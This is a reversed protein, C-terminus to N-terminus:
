LVLFVPYNDLDGRFFRALLMAQTYPLLGIPIKEKLFPHEIEERKRNQWANIFLRKTEDKMVINNEGNEIFDNRKVQRRNILSLVFRDCLYSRLEEMIDLALSARGPRETHLFGVYPDLGVSELASQIEHALLTYAFSLMCNVRDKPPRRSRGNFVFAEDSNLIMNNFISFYINAAEGEFGRLIQLNEANLCIKKIRNLKASANIIDSSLGQEPHDRKFREVSKRCNHIKGAIIIQSLKLPTIHDDALRYQHRRLLVNGCIPGSIRAMFSGSQTLFCLGIGRNVCLQMLQPSAGMRNFCVISEINIAPLQLVKTGKISVVITEGEKSLYADPNTIYLTNLLKRM